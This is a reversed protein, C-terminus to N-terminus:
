FVAKGGVPSVKVTLTSTDKHYRRAEADREDQATKARCCPQYSKHM